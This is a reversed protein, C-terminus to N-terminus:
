RTTRTTTQPDGKTTQARTSFIIEAMPEQRPSNNSVAKQAKRSTKPFMQKKLSGIDRARNLSKNIDEGFLQQTDTYELDCLSVCTRNLFPKTKQCRM